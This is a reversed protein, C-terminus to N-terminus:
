EQVKAQPAAPVSVTPFREPQQDSESRKGPAHVRHSDCLRLSLGVQNGPVASRLRKLGISIKEQRAPEFPMVVVSKLGAGARQRASRVSRAAPQWLQALNRWDAWLPWHSLLKM